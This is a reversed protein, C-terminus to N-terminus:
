LSDPTVSFHIVQVQLSQTCDTQIQSSAGSRKLSSIQGSLSLSELPVLGKFPDVRGVHMGRVSGFPVM